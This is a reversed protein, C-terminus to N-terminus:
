IEGLMEYKKNDYEWDGYFDIRCSSFNHYIYYPIEMNNINNDGPINAKNSVYTSFEPASLIQPFQEDYFYFVLGDYSEIESLLASDKEINNTLKVAAINKEYKFNLGKCWENNMGNLFNNFAEIEASNLQIKDKKIYGIHYFIQSAKLQEPTFCTLPTWTKCPFDNFVKEMGLVNYLPNVPQVIVCNNKEKWYKKAFFPHIKKENKIYQRTRKTKGMILIQFNFKCISQLNKLMRYCILSLLDDKYDLIFIREPMDKYLYEFENMRRNILWNTQAELSFGPIPYELNLDYMLIKRQAELM